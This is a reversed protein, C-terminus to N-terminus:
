VGGRAIGANASQCSRELDTLALSQERGPPVVDVLFLALELYRRRLDEYLRAKEPTPAHYTFDRKVRRIIEQRRREVERELRENERQAAALQAEEDPGASPLEQGFEAATRPAAHGIEPKTM